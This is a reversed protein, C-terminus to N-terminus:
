GGHANDVPRMISLANNYLAGGVMIVFLATGNNVAVSNEVFSFYGACQFKWDDCRTQPSTRYVAGHLAKVKRRFRAM